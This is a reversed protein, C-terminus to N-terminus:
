DRRKSPSLGLVHLDGANPRLLGLLMRITTTKGAGNRGLFAFTQGSPVNLNLGNLVTHAGFAKVVSHIQIAPNCM